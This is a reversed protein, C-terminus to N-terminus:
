YRDRRKPSRQHVRLSHPDRRYVGGWYGRPDNGTQDNAIRGKDNVATFTWIACSLVFSILSMVVLESASPKIEGRLYLYGGGLGGDKGTMSVRKFRSPENFLLDTVVAPVRKGKHQQGLLVDPDAPHGELDMLRALLLDNGLPMGTWARSWKVINGESLGLVLVIANKALADRAFGFWYARLANVLEDPTAKASQETVLVVYLDGQLESLSANVYRLRSDWKADDNPALRPGIVALHRSTYFDTIGVPIPAQVLLSTRLREMDPSFRKLITKDSALILNEYSSRKSVPGPLGQTIRELAAQWLVPVGAPISAPVAVSARWRPRDASVWRDGVLYDGLTTDIHYDYEIKAYPCQRWRTEPRVGTCTSKGCSYTYTVMVIYPDCAYSHSCPGDRTCIVDKRWAKTEWGNLTQNYSVKDNYSCAYGSLTTAITLLLTALSGLGFEGWTVRAESATAELWLKVALGAVLSAVLSVIITLLM